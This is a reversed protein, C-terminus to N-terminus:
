GRVEHKSFIKEVKRLELLIMVDALAKNAGHESGYQLYEGAVMFAIAEPPFSELLAALNAAHYAKGIQNSLSFDYYITAPEEGQNNEGDNVIVEGPNGGGGRFVRGLVRQLVRHQNGYYPVDNGSLNQWPVLGSYEDAIYKKFWWNAWEQNWDTDNTDTRRSFYKYFGALHYLAAALDGSSQELIIELVRATSLPEETPQEEYIREIESKVCSYDLVEVSESYEPNIEFESTADSRKILNVVDAPFYGLLRQKVEEPGSRQQLALLVIKLPSSAELLGDEDAHTRTIERFYDAVRMYNPGRRWFVPMEPHGAEFNRIGEEIVQSYPRFRKNESVPVEHPHHKEMDTRAIHSLAAATVKLVTDCSSQAVVDTLSPNDATVRSVTDLVVFAARYFGYLEADSDEVKSHPEEALRGDSSNVM